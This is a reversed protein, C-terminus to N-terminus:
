ARGRGSPERRERFPLLLLALLATVALITGVNALAATVWTGSEGDLTGVGALTGTGLGSLTATRVAIPPYRLEKLLSVATGLVFGDILAWVLLNLVGLVAAPVWPLGTEQVAITACVPALLVVGCGLMGIDDGYGGDHTNGMLLVAVLVPALAAVWFVMTPGLSSTRTLLVGTVVATVPASVAWVGLARLGGSLSRAFRGRSGGDPDRDLYLTAGPGPHRVSVRHLRSSLASERARGPVAPASPQTPPHPVPHAPGPPPPAGPAAPAPRAPAPRAPAPRAPAGQTLAAADPAAPARHGGPLGPGPPQPAPDVPATALRESVRAASAPREARDKALLNLVLRDWAPPLGPRKRSPPAPTDDLHSRLIGYLSVSSFPPEGTLMTYLLCGLAYLDSRADLVAEGRVQEPSMYAPTGLTAGLTTLQAPDATADFSRAIGFDLVTVLGDAGVLVNGPKLDRHVVGARHAVTLAACIQRGWDAVQALSPRNGAPLRDPPHGHLLEMVLYLVTQDDVTAEGYDHVTVIHRSSLAAALRAERGFRAVLGGAAAGGSLGTITKVAVTRGLTLDAAQWVTGTGGSGIRAGLRYRGGLLTGKM